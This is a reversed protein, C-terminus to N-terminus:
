LLKVPGTAYGTEVVGFDNYGVLGGVDASGSSRSRHRSSTEVFDGNYGVLGGVASTSDGDSGRHRPENGGHRWEFGGARRCVRAASM